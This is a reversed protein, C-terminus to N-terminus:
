MLVRHKEAQESYTYQPMMPIENCLERDQKLQDLEDAYKTYSYMSRETLEDEIEKKIMKYVEMSRRIEIEKKGYDAKRKIMKTLSIIYHLCILVFVLQFIGNGAALLGGLWSLQDGFSLYKLIIIKEEFDFM